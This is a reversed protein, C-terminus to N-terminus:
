FVWNLAETLLDVKDEYAALLYQHAEPDAGRAAVLRRCDTIVRDIITLNVEFVGQIDEPWTMSTESVERELEVIADLYAREAEFTKSVASEVQLNQRQPAGDKPVPPPQLLFFLAVAAAGAAPALWALPNMRPRRKSGFKIAAGLGSPPEELAIGQLADRAQVQAEAEARCGLCAALHKEVRGAVEASLASDVHDSLLGRVENCRM